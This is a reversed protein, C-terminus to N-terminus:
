RPESWGYFFRCMQQHILVHQCMLTPAEHKVHKVHAISYRSLLLWKTDGSQPLLGRLGGTVAKDRQEVEGTVVEAATLSTSRSEDGGGHRWWTKMNVSLSTYWLCLLGSCVTFLSWWSYVREELTCLQSNKLIWKEVSKYPLFCQGPMSRLWMLDQGDSEFCIVLM